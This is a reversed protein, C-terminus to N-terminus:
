FRRITPPANQKILPRTMTTILHNNQKTLLAKQKGLLNANYSTLIYTIEDLKVLLQFTLRYVSIYNM